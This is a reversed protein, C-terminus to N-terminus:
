VTRQWYAGTEGRRDRDGGGDEGRGPGAILGALIECPRRIANHCLVRAAHNSFASPETPTKRAAAPTARAVVAVM